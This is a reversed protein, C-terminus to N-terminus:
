VIQEHKFVYESWAQPNDDASSRDAKGRRRAPVVVRVRSVPEPTEKMFAPEDRIPELWVVVAPKRLVAYTERIQGWTNCLTM